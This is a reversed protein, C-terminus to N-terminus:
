FRAETEAYLRDLADSDPEYREEAPNWHMTVEIERAGATAEPPDSCDTEDITTTETIRVVFPSWPGDGDLPEFAATQSRELGCHRETFAFFSAVEKLQGEVLAVVAISEYGQNSNFHSSSVLLGDTDASLSLTKPEFYSTHQDAAADAVDLLAKQKGDFVALLAGGVSQLRTIDGQVLLALLTSGESRFAAAEPQTFALPFDAAAPDDPFSLNRVPQTSTGRFYGNIEVLDPAILRVLHEHGGTAVPPNTGDIALAPMAALGLLLTLMMARM